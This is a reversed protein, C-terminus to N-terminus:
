RRSIMPPLLWTRLSPQLHVTPTRRSAAGLWLLRGEAQQGKTVHFTQTLASGHEGGKGQPGRAAVQEESNFFPLDYCTWRTRASKAESRPGKGTGSGHGKGRSVLYATIDDQTVVYARGRMRHGFGFGYGQGIGKARRKVFCRARRRLRRVLKGTVRGWRRRRTRNQGFVLESARADSMPHLDSMDLVINGSGSSTM